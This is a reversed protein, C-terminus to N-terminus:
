LVFLQDKFSFLLITMCNYGSDVHIHGFSFYKKQQQQNEQFINEFCESYVKKGRGVQM